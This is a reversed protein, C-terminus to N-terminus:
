ANAQNGKSFVDINHVFNIFFAIQMTKTPILFLKDFPNVM